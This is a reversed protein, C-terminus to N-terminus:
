VIGYGEEKRFWQEMSKLIEGYRRFKKGYLNKDLVSGRIAESTVTAGAAEAYDGYWGEGCAAIFAAGLACSDTIRMKYIPIDIVAALIDMWLKSKVAGGMIKIVSPNFGNEKFDDIANKLSFAASEMVALAMDCPDTTFDMGIFGGRALSNWFPYTAGSLWPIFFLGANKTLVAASNKESFINEDIQSLAQGPFFKDGIWQYSSGVGGLSVMNGYLGPAPHPTPSIFTISYIPKESIGMIVWATGTSILMDGPHVAGCGLSACYQDHAGNYVKVAASLGLEEAAAPTLAGLPQGANLIAPLEAETIGVADLINKDWAGTNINFLERIAANTPDIVAKGTLKLNIFELTSLYKKAEKYKKHDKMYRIKAADCWPAMRWGTTRYITDDGLVSALIDAEDQARGDMWTIARGIPRDKGDFAAMSAGQTSLSIARVDQAYRSSVAQRVAAICANWWDDAEQEIHNGERYLQYGQWGYGIVTGKADLVVAKTGTTGIDVGIVYM